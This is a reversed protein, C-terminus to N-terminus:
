WGRTSLLDPDQLAPIPKRVPALPASQRQLHEKDASLQINEAKLIRSNHHAEDLDHQSKGLEAKLVVADASLRQLEERLVAVELNNIIRKARSNEEQLQPVQDQILQQEEEKSDALAAEFEIAKQRWQQVERKGVTGQDRPGKTGQDSPEM